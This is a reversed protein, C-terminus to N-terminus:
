KNSHGIRELDGSEELAALFEIMQGMGGRSFRLGHTTELFEAVDSAEQTGVPDGTIIRRRVFDMEEEIAERIVQQLQSKTVRMKNELPLETQAEPEGVMGDAHPNELDYIFQTVGKM